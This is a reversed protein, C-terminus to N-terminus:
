YEDDHMLSMISAMRKKKKMKMDDDVGGEQYEKEFSEDFEDKEPGMDAKMNSFSHPENTETEKSDPDPYTEFEDLYDLEEPVEGGKAMKKAKHINQAMEDGSLVGGEAFKFAKRMSSQADASGPLVPGGDKMHEMHKKKQAKRKVAYAIALSQKSPKGSEMEKEVNKNFTKQSKGQILPM